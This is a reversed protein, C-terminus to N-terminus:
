NDQSEAEGNFYDGIGAYNSGGNDADQEAEVSYTTRVTEYEQHTIIIYVLAAALLAALIVIVSLMKRTTAQFAAAMVEVAHGPVPEANKCKKCDPM